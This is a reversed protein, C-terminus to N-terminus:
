SAHMAEWDQCGDQPTACADLLDLQRVAQTRPKATRAHGVPGTYLAHHRACSWTHQVSRTNLFDSPQARHRSSSCCCRSTSRFPPARWRSMWTTRPWRTGAFRAPSRTRWRPMGATRRRSRRPPICCPAGDTIMEVSGCGLMRALPSPSTQPSMCVQMRMKVPMCWLFAYGGCVLMCCAGSPRVQQTSSSPGAAAAAAARAGGNSGLCAGPGGLIRRM